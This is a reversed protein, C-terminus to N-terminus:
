RTDEKKGNRKAVKKIKILGAEGGKEKELQSWDIVDGKIIGKKEVVDRPIYTFFHPRNRNRGKMMVGIVTDTM